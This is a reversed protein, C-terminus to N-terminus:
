QEEEYPWLSDPQQHYLCDNSRVLFNHFNSDSNDVIPCICGLKHLRVIIQNYIVDEKKWKRSLLVDQIFRPSM